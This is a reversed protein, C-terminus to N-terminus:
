YPTTLDNSDKGKSPILEVRLTFEGLIQNNHFLLVPGQLERAEQGM